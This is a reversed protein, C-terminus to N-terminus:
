KKMEPGLLIDPLIRPSTDFVSPGTGHHLVIRNEHLVSHPVFYVMTTSYQLYHSLNLFWVVACPM